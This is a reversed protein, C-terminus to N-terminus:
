CILSLCVRNVFTLVTIRPIFRQNHVKQMRPVHTSNPVVQSTVGYHITCMLRENWTQVWRSYTSASMAYKDQVWKMGQVLKMGQLPFSHLCCLLKKLIFNFNGVAFHTYRFWWPFRPPQMNHFSLSSFYVEVLINAKQTCFRRPGYKKCHLLTWLAICYALRRWPAGVNRPRQTGAAWRHFRTASAWHSVKEEDVRLHSLKLVASFEIWNFCHWELVKEFTLCVFNCKWPM